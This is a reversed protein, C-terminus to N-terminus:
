NFTKNQQEQTLVKLPVQQNPYLMQHPPVTIYNPNTNFIWVYSSLSLELAQLMRESGGGRMYQVGAAYM